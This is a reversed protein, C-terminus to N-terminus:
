ITSVRLCRNCLEMAPSSALPYERLAPACSIPPLSSLRTFSIGEAEEPQKVSISKIHSFLYEM